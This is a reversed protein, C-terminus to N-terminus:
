SSCCSNQSGILDESFERAFSDVSLFILQGVVIMSANSGSMNRTKSSINWTASFRERSDADKKSNTSTAEQPM